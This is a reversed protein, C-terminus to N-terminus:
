EWQKEQYNDWLVPETEPPPLFLTKIFANCKGEFSEELKDPSSRISPIRQKNEDKTYSM